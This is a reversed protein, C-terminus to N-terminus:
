LILVTLECFLQVIEVELCNLSYHTHADLCYSFYSINRYLCRYDTHVQFCVYGVSCHEHIFFGKLTGDEGDEDILVQTQERGSTIVVETMQSTVVVSFAEQDELVEDDLIELDTCSTPMINSSQGSLFALEQSTM